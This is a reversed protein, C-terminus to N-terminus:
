TAGEKNSPAKHAAGTDPAGPAGDDDSSDPGPTPVVAAHGDGSESSPIGAPETVDAASPIREAIGSQIVRGTAGDVYAPRVVTIDTGDEPGVFEFAERIAEDSVVQIGSQALWGRVLATLDDQSAGARVASDFQTLQHLHANRETVAAIVQKRLGNYADAAMGSNPERILTVMEIKEVRRDIRDILEEIKSLKSALDDIKKSRSSM